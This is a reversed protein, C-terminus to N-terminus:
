MKAALVFDAETLAPWHKDMFYLESYTARWTLFGSTREEGSTRIIMDPDPLEATDLHSAFREETCAVSEEGARERALAEAVVADVARVIEDRGGYSLAVWVTTVIEERAATKEELEDMGQRLEDSFDDRRGIFRVRISENESFKEIAEQFLGMLYSVEEESRKWNETSFAYFVGHPIEEKVLWKICDRMTEGGKRHGELTPLGKEKAYRRNGDM